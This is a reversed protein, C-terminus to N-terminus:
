KRLCGKTRANTVEKFYVHWTVHAGAPIQSYAILVAIAAMTFLLLIPVPECACGGTVTTKNSDRLRCYINITELRLSM